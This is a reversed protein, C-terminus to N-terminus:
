TCRAPRVPLPAASGIGPVTRESRAGASPFRMPSKEDCSPMATLVLCGASCAAKSAAASSTSHDQTVRPVALCHPVEVAPGVSSLRLETRLKVHAHLTGCKKGDIRGKPGRAGDGSRPVRCGSALRAYRVHRQSRHRLPSCKRGAGISTHHAGSPACLRRGVLPM